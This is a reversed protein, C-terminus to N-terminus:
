FPWICLIFLCIVFIVLFFPSFIYNNVFQVVWLYLSLSSTLVLMPVSYMCQIHSGRGVCACFFVVGGRRVGSKVQHSADRCRKQTTRETQNLSENRLVCQWAKCSLGFIWTSHDSTQHNSGLVLPLSLRFLTSWLDLYHDM